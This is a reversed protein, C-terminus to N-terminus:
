ASRPQWRAKKVPWKSTSTDYRADNTRGNRHWRGSQKESIIVVRDQASGRDASAIGDQSESITVTRHQSSMSGKGHSVGQSVNDEMMAKGKSSRGKGKAEHCSGGSKGERVRDKFCRETLARIGNGPLGSSRPLHILDCGDNSFAQRSASSRTQCARAVFAARATDVDEVIRSPYSTGALMDRPATWPAHLYKHPLHALEPVWQRVYNGTPDAKSAHRVPHCDIGVLWQSVGMAGQHQWMMANIALDSDALAIHFWEEGDRWDAGLTEVLFQGVTHRMNQQIYGTQRLERMAADVLPYGTQGERWADFKASSKDICWEMTEYAMRMPTDPLDPWYYLMWYAYDRWACRRLWKKAQESSRDSMWWAEVMSLLGLRFYPSLRSEKARPGADRTISGKYRSLGGEEQFRHFERHAADETMQWCKALKMSDEVLPQGTVRSVLSKSGFPWCEDASGAFPKDTTMASPAPCREPPPVVKRIEGGKHWGDWFAKFIHLGRGVASFIPCNEPERFLFGSHSKVAIGAKSCIRELENERWREVPEHRRNFSIESAGFRKAIDLLATAVGENGGSENEIWLRNGYSKYLDDDLSRLAQPLLAQLTSGELCWDHQCPMTSSRMHAREEAPCWTFVAVIADAAKAAHFLAPNDRLRLDGM